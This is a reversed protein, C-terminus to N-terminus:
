KILSIALDSFLLLLTFAAAQAQLAKRQRACIAIFDPDGTHLYGRQELYRRLRNQSSANKLGFRLVAPRGLDKWANAHRELLTTLMRRDDHVRFSVSGVLFLLSLIASADLWTPEMASGEFFIALDHAL